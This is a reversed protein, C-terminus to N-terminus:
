LKGGWKKRISHTLAVVRVHSIGLQSGVERVTLGQLLGHVVEKERVTLGNNLMGNVVLRAELGSSGDAESLDPLDSARLWPGGEEQGGGERDAEIPDQPADLSTMSKPDRTMRLHNQLAFWCSQILYSQTKGQTERRQWLAWLYSLMEQFYDGVDEYPHAFRGARLAIGRLIPVFPKMWQDFSLEESKRRVNEQSM